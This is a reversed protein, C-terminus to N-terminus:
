DVPTFNEKFFLTVALFVKANPGIEKAADDADQQDFFIETESDAVMDDTLVGNPAVVFVAIEM